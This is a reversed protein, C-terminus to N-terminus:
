RRRGSLGMAVNLVGVAGVLAAYTRADRFVDPWRASLALFVGAFAVTAALGLPDVAFGRRALLAGALAGLGAGALYLGAPDLDPRGEIAWAVGAGWGVLVCATAWYGGRPGGAAAALLYTLGVILPVMWFRDLGDGVVLALVVAGAVLVAGQRLRLWPPRHEESSV